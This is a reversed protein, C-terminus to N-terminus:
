VEDWNAVLLLAEEKTMNNKLKNARNSIVRVNGRVYGLDNEIRDLSPSNYDGGRGKNREITIPIGLVPCTDNWKIDSASVEFPISRKKARSKAEQVMRILRAYSSDFTRSYSNRARRFYGEKNKEYDSPMPKLSTVQPMVAM